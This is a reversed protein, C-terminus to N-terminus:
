PRETLSLINGDPDKFWAVRAGGAATWIGDPGAFDYREVDVGLRDLAAEIDDVQWGLATGAPPDLRDLKQIRVETGGSDFVLAFEDDSVFRLKLKGEYFDRAREPNATALFAVLKL